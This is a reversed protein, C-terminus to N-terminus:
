FYSNNLYDYILLFLFNACLFYYELYAYEIIILLCLHMVLLLCFVNAYPILPIPSYYLAYLITITYTSLVIYFEVVVYFFVLARAYIYLTILAHPVLYTPASEYVVVIFFYVRLLPILHLLLYAQTHIPTLMHMLYTFM